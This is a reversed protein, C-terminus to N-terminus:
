VEVEKEGIIQITNNSYSKINKISSSSLFKVSKFIKIYLAEQMLTLDSGSDLCAIIRLKNMFVAFYIKKDLNKRSKENTALCSYIESQSGISNSYATASIEPNEAMKILNIEGNEQEPNEFTELNVKLKENRARKLMQKEKPKKIFTQGTSGFGGRKNSSISRENDLIPAKSPLILLQCVSQGKLIELTEKTTNELMLQVEEKFGYDILGLIIKVKFKPLASSKNM